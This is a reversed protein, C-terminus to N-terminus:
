KRRAEKIAQIRLKSLEKKIDKGQLGKTVLEKADIANAAKFVKRYIDPQEFDKNEFGPRGRSDAECALLFLEFREPRRFADLSVLTKLFTDARLEAARHYHLHYKTVIMGLERYDNPIRYRDCLAEVLPVGRSEHDIHKPWQSKPTTGKGLDHVLAAFRVKTDGSLKAAQTLVMMTHVGTDIEPHHKEPQPVGWLRNIEPFLKELAGCERLVEFYRAPTKEALARMTEQWVRESVLSDVEGSRVMDQMLALTEDAIVFGLEAFRAAFRAIRLIRM